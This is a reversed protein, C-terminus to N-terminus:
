QNWYKFFLNRKSQAKAVHRRGLRTNYGLLRAMGMNWRYSILNRLPVRLFSDKIMDMITSYSQGLPNFSINEGGTKKSKLEFRVLDQILRIQMGYDMVTKRDDYLHGNDVVSMRRSFVAKEGHRVQILNMYAYHELGDIFDMVYDPVLMDTKKTFMFQGPTEAARVDSISSLEADSYINFFDTRKYNDFADLFLRGAYSACAEGDEISRVLTTIHDYFWIERCSTNIYYDYKFNKQIARIACGDTMSRIKKQDFLELPLIKIDYYKESTYQRVYEAVTIDAGVALIINPYYQNEINKIVVDLKDSIDEEDLSNLIYTVLVKKSTDKAFLSDSIINFRKAHNEVIDLLQRDLAFKEKFIEQARRVLKFAEERHNIVWEYKEMIQKFTDEPDKKNYYIFLAADSFHEKMFENNDSIMVAGAACAEYARNTVAGARRHIDSSIVLCVGCENIEDLIAFGDWPIPYQYCKYGEWPKLGGWNKMVDPGFFKINGTADLLQFLGEHRNKSNVLKDWNMGCYFMKPNELRPKLMSSQPFSATLMSTEEINRPKNMLITKLHGKMGGLDYTLYDDNMLYNNTIFQNYEGLNLPIEPPNWLAHYYFTDLSKHSLYHTTIVFDLDKGDTLVNTKKQDKENLIHGWDSLLVCEIGTEKASTNIRAVVESEASLDGPWPNIIGIKGIGNKNLPIKYNRNNYSITKYLEMLRLKEYRSLKNNIFEIIFDKFMNIGGDNFDANKAEKAFKISGANLEYCIDSNSYIDDKVADCENFYASNIIDTAYTYKKPIAKLLEQKSINYFAFIGFYIYGFNYWFEKDNCIDCSEYRKLILKKFENINKDDKYQNELVGVCAILRNFM